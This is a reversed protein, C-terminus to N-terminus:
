TNPIGKLAEANAYALAQIITDVLDAEKSSLIVRDFAVGVADRTASSGIFPTDYFQYDRQQAAARAGMAKVISEFKARYEAATVGELAASDAITEDALSLYEEFRASTYVSERIPSYGTALAFELQVNHSTLYKIFYWSALKKLM